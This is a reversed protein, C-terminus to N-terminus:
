DKYEVSMVKEEGCITSEKPKTEGTEEWSIRQEAESMNEAEVEYIYETLARTRVLYKRM